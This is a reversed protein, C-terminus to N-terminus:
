SRSTSFPPISKLFYFECFRCTKKAFKGIGPTIFFTRNRHSNQNMKVIVDYIFGALRKERELGCVADPKQLKVNPKLNVSNLASVGDYSCIYCIIHKIHFELAAFFQRIKLTQISFGLHWRTLVFSRVIFPDSVISPIAKFM